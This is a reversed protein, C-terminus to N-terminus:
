PDVWGRPASGCGACGSGTGRRGRPIARLGSGDDQVLLTLAASDYVLGVRVVRAAAHQVVNTIAEQAVRLVEDRGPARAPGAAGVVTLSADWSCAREAWQLESRLVSELSRGELPSRWGSSPQASRPSRDTRRGGPEELGAAAAAPRRVLQAQAEDLQAFITASGQALLDQVEALVRDREATAAQARAREEAAEHITANALALAARRAFVQM